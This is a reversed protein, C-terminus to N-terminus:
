VFVRKERKKRHAKLGFRHAEDRIKMLLLLEKSGNRFNIPNMRGPIFIRDTARARKRGDKDRGKAIAAIMLEVGADELARAVIALQGKGGDILLLDPHPREDESRESSCFRREIVERIMGYDDPTELTQINYIRYNKKDPLGDNFSVISGVADRGDLNSIDLCEIRHIPDTIGLKMAIVELASIDRESATRSKLQEEANTVALQVLDLLDGRQPTLLEVVGQRRDSLISKLADLPPLEIPFLLKRPIFAADCYRRLLFEEIFEPTIEQQSDFPFSLQRKLLGGRIELVSICARGAIKAIGFADIDGGDFRVVKQKEQITQMMAIADRLRAAEEYKMAHSAVDMKSQLDAILEDDLGSLFRIADTISAAYDEKTIKDCCPGSCRGIDFKLCPRIRNRFETDRCTRIRFARVIRDVAERAAPSSDYPGFYRAGDKKIQRAVAIAPSLHDIGIRISAYSKDDRLHINYRPRHEKILTNELLLAEKESDTVIFSIDKARKILFEIQPRTDRGEVFYSSIRNRLDIAKGVYIVKDEGDKFLYVGPTHPFTQAKEALTM